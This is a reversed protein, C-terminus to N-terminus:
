KRVIIKQTTIKSGSNIQLFYLGNGLKGLDLNVTTAADNHLRFVTRGSEDTVLINANGLDAASGTVSFVGASVTPYVRLPTIAAPPSSPEMFATPSATIASPERLSEVTVFGVIDGTSDFLDPRPSTAPSVCRLVSLNVIGAGSITANFNKDIQIFNSATLSTAQSPQVTVTGTGNGQEPASTGIFIKGASASAPLSGSNYIVTSSPCAPCVFVSYISMSINPNGTAGFNAGQPYIWFQSFNASATFTFVQDFTGDFTTLAINRIPQVTLGPDNAATPIQGRCGALAAPRLNNAAFLNLTGNSGRSPIFFDIGFSYIIRVDYSQGATFAYNTYIGSGGNGPFDPNPGTEHVLNVHHVNECPSKGEVLWSSNQVEAPAGHSVFWGNCDGSWTTCGDSTTVPSLCSATFAGNVLCNGACIGPFQAFLRQGPFLLLLALCPVLTRM